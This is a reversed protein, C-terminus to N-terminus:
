PVLHGPYMDYDFGNTFDALFDNPYSSCCEAMPDVLGIINQITVNANRWQTHTEYMTNCIAMYNRGISETYNKQAVCPDQFLVKMYIEFQVFWAFSRVYQIGWWLAIV